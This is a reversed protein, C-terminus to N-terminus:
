QKGPLIIHFISGVGVKSTAFIEGQHNEVIKKCMALGIGTGSYSSRGHLRQFINFIKEAHEDDFGIGNDAVTIKYYPVDEKPMLLKSKEKEELLSASVEILPSRDSDTFKLANSILNGFLQAIQRPVAEIVPLYDYAIAAKKQELLLEFDTVIEDIVEGLDVLSLSEKEKSLQSYALVDRILDTMRASSVRIKDIYNKSQQSIDEGLSQELMQTFTSVKRLPEQLDHSAIYAFQALEANSRHLEKNTDALEQTRALVVDEIKQQALVQNTVENAVAIIGTIEGNTERYAEYVFNVYVQEISGDRPLLTPVAQAIYANGTTYVQKLLEEFGQNKAEPLGEFIPKHMVDSSEKGWFEFMRNNAIEVVFEPGKFICMAVPAKLITNRLNEESRALRKKALIQETVDVAIDLIAYVKGQENLLPTYTFDYYDYNLVGDRVIKVQSGYTKFEVGTTFVDDLIKLYPQKETILEPMVERLPKGAIDDGKGVIDIFAQNPMEIVLDRGIFLGIAIPAASIVSRLKKESEALKNVTHVKDTTEHCVVLVGDVRGNENKVATYSFTWYVDELQGNRYIPILADEHWTAEGTTRVHNILPFIVEWIEPWCDKAKQGLAKPHKGEQGLSPRYADNYIQILDEGWWLFMPFKSSLILAVTTRLHIPWSEFAGIPTKAWNYARVLAGMDGGGQLFPYQEKKGEM